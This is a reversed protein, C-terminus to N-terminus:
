RDEETDPPIDLWALLVDTIVDAAAGASMGGHVRLDRLVPPSLVSRAVLVEREGARAGLAERILSTVREDFERAGRRFADVREHEREHVHYWPEAREFFEALARALARLRAAEGEAGELVAPSPARLTELLGDVVADALAAPTEFHNLVTGPAVDARRAVEQMSVTEVPRERYLAGAAEVIRARTEAMAEARKGMRYKRPGM